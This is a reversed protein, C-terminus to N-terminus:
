NILLKNSIIIKAENLSVEPFNEQTFPIMILEGDEKKIEIIDGAGFNYVM